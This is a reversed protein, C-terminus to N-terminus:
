RGSGMLTADQMVSKEDLPRAGAPMGHSQMLFAMIALYKERPLDTPDGHPMHTSMYVYVGKVSQYQLNDDGGALAPGFVGELKGGHCEACSEYYDLRGSQAQQATYSGGTAGPAATMAFGALALSAGLAAIAPARTM